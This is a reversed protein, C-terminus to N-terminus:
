RWFYPQSLKSPEEKIADFFPVVFMQENKMNGVFLAWIGFIHVGEASHCQVELTVVM